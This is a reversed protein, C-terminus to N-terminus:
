LLSHQQISLQDYQLLIYRGSIKMRADGEDSFILIAGTGGLEIPTIGEARRLSELGAVEVRRAADAQDGSWFWLEFPRKKRDERRALILYGKLRPVYALGRIGSGGLDLLFRTFRPEGRNFAEGPNELALIMARNDKLPSRFGFWLQKQERDLALGEVNIGGTQTRAAEDLDPYQATMRSKLDPVLTADTFRDGEIRFRILKERRDRTRGKDETRAYSTVAYVYGSKDVAMAELDSLKGLSGLGEGEGLLAERRPPAVHMDGETDLLMIRIPHKGEDEVVILRGDPIQAVGSPEFIDELERFKEFRPLSAAESTRAALSAPAGSDRLFVITLVVFSVLVSLGLGVLFIRYSVELLKLRKNAYSGLFYLQRIMSDYIRPSDRLTERMAPVFESESLATYDEFVLLNARNETFDAVTWKAKRREPLASLIAFAMSLFCTTLFIATPIEMLPEASMVFAESIFLFSLILGNISIMINAKTATLALLDLHARYANRFLTEVGRRSGIEEKSKKKSKKAAKPPDGAAEPGAPAGGPEEAPTSTPETDETM